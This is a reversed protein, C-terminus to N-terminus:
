EDPTDECALPGSGAELQKAYFIAEFRGLAGRRTERYGHHAYFGQAAVQELTTDLHLRLLGRVRARRELEALILSGFGRRQHAPHVRMRRVEAADAGTPVLAGMAVLEGDLLGVLFEAGRELYATAPDRVDEDWPGNGAHVGSEELATNHLEWVAAQDRPEFDRIFLM